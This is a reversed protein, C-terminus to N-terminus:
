EDTGYDPACVYAVDAAKGLNDRTADGAAECAQRSQFRTTQTQAAGNILLTLILVWTTM